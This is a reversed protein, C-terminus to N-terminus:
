RWSDNEFVVKPHNCVNEYFISCSLFNEQINVKSCEYYNLQEVLIDQLVAASDKDM